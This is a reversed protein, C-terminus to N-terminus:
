SWIPELKGDIKRVQRVGRSHRHWKALDIDQRKWRGKVPHVIELRPMFRVERQYHM